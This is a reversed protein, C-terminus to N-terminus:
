DGKRFLADEPEGGEDLVHRIRADLDNIAMRAAENRSVELYLAIADAAKIERPKLYFSLNQGREKPAIPKRGAGPRKGGHKKRKAM